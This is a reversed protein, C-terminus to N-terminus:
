DKDGLVPGMRMAWVADKTGGYGDSDPSDVAATAPRGGANAGATTTSAQTGVMSPDIAIRLPATSTGVTCRRIANLDCTRRRHHRASPALLQLHRAVAAAATHKHHTATRARDLM